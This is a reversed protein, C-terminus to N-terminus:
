AYCRLRRSFQALSEVNSKEARECWDKLQATLQETSLTSRQWIKTLEQRMTWSTKLTPSSDLARDLDARYAAPVEAEDRHLWTRVSAAASRSAIHGKARLKAIEDATTRKMHSAYRSLVDYRHQIVAHLTAADIEFKTPDLRVKPPAKRVKALGLFSLIQLYLWGLDFEHWRMSFKASTPYAHHNNHLEEGGIWVGFRTINRAADDCEFNRYGWYHGIGNIVGAAWFPIWLMMVGWMLFGPIIGFLAINISLTVLIGLKNCPTYVNREVWDDPTGHGYRTMTEPKHSEKVYLVVGGWLVKNIGLIQPSHPDEETECKAHHKRHIAAWEKTIMGTTMWMWFRFFHSVVPHFDVASHAQGRHLYLTVGAITIQVLVLLVLLNGWWPLGLLGDFM